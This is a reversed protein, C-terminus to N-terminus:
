VLKLMKESLLELCETTQGLAMEEGFMQSLDFVQEAGLDKIAKHDLENIGCVLWLKKTSKKIKSALGAILKGSLTQHDIKGEGTIICDVQALYTDFNLIEIFTATGPVIKANLFAVAGAALGGAAGAGPLSAVKKNLDQEIRVDLHKLGADLREIMATDAGKQAAYVVAAGNSGHLPNDVDCVVFLEVSPLNEPAVIANIDALALGIPPVEHGHTDLFNYGFATAMGIGGDNTSSGGVFLYIKECGNKWAHKILQGTGYTSTYEPNRLSPKVLLLGSAQAMEIYATNDKRLYYATSTKFLPDKVMMNVRSAGLANEIADLSGEGGDAMPLNFVEHGGSQLKAGLTNCFQTASISGKFTDPCLLFKM